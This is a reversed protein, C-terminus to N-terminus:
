ARALHALGGLKIKFQLAFILFNEFNHTSKNVIKDVLIKNISM